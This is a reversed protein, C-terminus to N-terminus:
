GQAGATRASDSSRVPSDCKHSCWSCWIGPLPTNISPVDLIFYFALGHVMVSGRAAIAEYETMGAERHTGMRFSM